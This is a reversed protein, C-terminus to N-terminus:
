TVAPRAALRMLASLDELQAPRDLLYGQVVVCGLEELDDLQAVTEVGEAVAALGLSRALELITRALSGQPTGDGLRDVFCRDIKLVDVPLRQLYSLSSYGTGFDDIAIRVGLARIVHLREMVKVDDDVLMSETIELTLRQPPFATLALVSTLDDIFSDDRLQKTSVNVSLQLEGHELHAVGFELVASCARELVFRGLPVIVGSEEALTIFRGPDIVGRTPHKWRVLAEVGSAVGTRTDVLPQYVVFFEGDSMARELDGRLELRERADDHMSPTFVAVRSKGMAKAHYMALDADRLLSEMADQVNSAESSRSLAVGISAALYV